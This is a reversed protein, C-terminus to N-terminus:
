SFTRIVTNIESPAHRRGVNHRPVHGMYGPTPLDGVAYTREQMGALSGMSWLMSRESTDPAFKRQSLQKLTKFAAPSQSAAQASTATGGNLAAAAENLERLRKKQRRFPDDATSGHEWGIRFQGKYIDSPIKRKGGKMEPALQERVPPRFVRGEAVDSAQKHLIADNYDGVSWNIPQHGSYGNLHYEQHPVTGAIERSQLSARSPYKQSYDLVQISEKPKQFLQMQFEPPKPPLPPTPLPIYDPPTNSCLVNDWLKRM